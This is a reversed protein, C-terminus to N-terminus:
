TLVGLKLLLRLLALPCSRVQVVLDYDFGQQRAYAKAMFLSGEAQRGQNTEHLQKLSSGPKLLADKDFLFFGKPRYWRRYELLYDTTSGAGNSAETCPFAMIFVDVEFGLDELDAVLHQKISDAIARQAELTGHTCTRQQFTFGARFADGRLCLAARKKGGAAPKHKAASATCAAKMSDQISKPLKLVPDSDNVFRLNGDQNTYGLTDINAV